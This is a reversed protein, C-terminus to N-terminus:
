IEDKMGEKELKEMYKERYYTCFNCCSCYGGVCKTDVGERKELEYQEPYKNNLNSLHEEAEELSKHVKTARQSGKKKVAYKDGNNFREEFTCMPLEEDSMKELEIIRDFKDLIMKEVEEPTGLNFEIVQCPFSPYKCNDGDRRLADEYERKNWDKLITIIRGKSFWHGSKKHWLFAGMQLQKKWKDNNSGYMVTWVSTVKYDDIYDYIHDIIGSLTYGNSFTYELHHEVYEYPKIEINELAFHTFSGFLMWLCNSIDQEIEDNHRRKLIIVREPDLLSTISYRKDRYVYEKETARVLMSPLGLNNTIKM